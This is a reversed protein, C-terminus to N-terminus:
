PVTTTFVVDVWYNTKKYTSNPFAVAASYKYVGNNGSVGSALAHLPANDFTTGFYNVNAAYHGTNTHYSAVYTTGAKVAVPQAFLLTQWGTATESTFMASALKTGTNSWLTGAHTGTNTAGKYFRIGTIYGDVDSRFRVGLEVAKTDTDAVVAPVVTSSWISCPCAPGSAESTFSVGTATAGSVTVSRNTPTFAYGSKTPTITYTGDVVTFSFNGSSDTTTTASSTGSLTVTVGTSGAGTITGSIAYTTASAFTTAVVDTGAITVNQSTPTFTYGAKSARLTYSGNALGLFSYNGSSDTTTSSTAAGNLSILAGSAGAGTVMGTLKFTQAVSTFDIGTVDAGALQINQVAGSYIYGAKSASVGYTGDSLGNFRYSGTPDATTTASAAGSLTLVAGNAGPGSVTGSISHGQVTTTTFV